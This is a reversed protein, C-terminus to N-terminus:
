HFCVPYNIQLQGLGTAGWTEREREGWPTSRGDDDDYRKGHFCSVAPPHRAPTPYM